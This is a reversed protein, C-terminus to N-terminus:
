APSGTPQPVEGTDRWDIDSSAGVLQGGPCHEARIEERKPNRIGAAGVLGGLAVLLAAIMMGMHFSHLSAKEAADTVAHAQAPPLGHVSPRGLPLRKAEAVAARAPPGLATGSLRQDMSSAFSTAIAAGVAATGLLGAVRAIANNVGSAIGAEKESGALVAATLPAVTMSLGLSFVLLPPLVESVYDAKLGTTQFLLLGAAAVLPGAGMFFRPGFRDALAGFRRSLFFMMVTAPLTALGSNLPSYGGIQQLFLVLFFFLIALGAYMAFTEVNGASFNRRRFLGLPLMPDKARSEYVTFIVLLLAGAILPGYVAPSSWGLRPQEILAFVPGGLGLACLLAGPYDVQRGGRERVASQPIVSLILWVCIAALPVNILFIWRWSAIALLEGGALPGLVGAIAGWATWTGIAGGRESPPFTNVIVALSSPVLLAGAVGQLARAAVLVGISPSAACLVSAAGFGAVGLAFVKREGYLDGLSGGVLILSGLTLLYGNAVWQQAALGGGLARQITPLAVNVVTGDLLAIGSGLICAVLTLRKVMADSRAPM